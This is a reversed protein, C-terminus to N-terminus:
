SHRRGPAKRPRGSPSPRKGCLFAWLEGSSAFSVRETSGTREVLGAAEKGPQDCRRYISVVYIEARTGVELDGPLQSLGTTM